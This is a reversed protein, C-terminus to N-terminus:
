MNKFKCVAVSLIYSILLLLIGLLIMVLDAYDKLKMFVLIMKILFVQIPERFWYLLVGFFISPVLTSAMRILVNKGKGIMYYFVYELALFFFSCLISLSLDYLNQWISLKKWFVFPVTALFELILFIMSFGATYIYKAAIRQKVAGPLLGFFGEEKEEETITSMTGAFVSCMVMLYYGLFLYGSFYVFFLSVIAYGLLLYIMKKNRYWDLKLYKIM